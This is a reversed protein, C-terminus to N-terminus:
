YHGKASLIYVTNEDENVEYVLRHEQNVRRSWAGSLQYKLPEPKGTGTYPHNSLENFLTLLKKLVAKDGAKKYADIDQLANDTFDLNYPM